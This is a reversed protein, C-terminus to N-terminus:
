HHSLELFRYNVYRIGFADFLEEIKKLDEETLKEEGYVAVWLRGNPVKIVKEPDISHGKLCKDFQPNPKWTCIGNVCGCTTLKLCDYWAAYICPTVINGAEDKPACVEGSCGGTACDSDTSCEKKIDQSIQVLINDKRFTYSGSVDWGLKEAKKLADETLLISLPVEAHAYSMNPSKPPIQIRVHLGKSSNWLIVAVREDYHSRYIIKGGQVLVDPSSYLPALNYTIGPKNLLVEVALNDMPTVCAQALPFFM